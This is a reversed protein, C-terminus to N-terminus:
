YFGGDLNQKNLEATATWKNINTDFVLVSGDEPNTMIYVDSLGSLAVSSTLRNTGTNYLWSVAGTSSTLFNLVSNQVDQNGFNTTYDIQNWRNIGDGVKFKGTDLEVAMEGEALLPNAATWQAANGRRLQLKVAM